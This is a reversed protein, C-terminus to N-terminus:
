SQTKATMLYPFFVGRASVKVEEEQIIVSSLEYMFMKSGTLEASVKYPLNTKIPKHYKVNLNATVGELGSRYLCNAMASDLIVAAVGGQVIGPYGNYEEGIVGESEIRNEGAERFSLSLGIPNKRGCAFCTSHSPINRCGKKQTAIWVNNLPLELREVTEFNDEFWKDIVDNPVNSKRTHETGRTELHVKSIVDFGNENFDIVVVKGYYESVRKMEQIAKIPNEFEHLGNASIVSSFSNDPFRLDAADLYTLSIRGSDALDPKDLNKKIVEPDNDGSMVIFGLANLVWLMRGSGTGLDLVIKDPNFRALNVALLYERFLNYGSGILKKDSSNEPIVPFDAPMKIENISMNV